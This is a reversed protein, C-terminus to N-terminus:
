RQRCARDQDRDARARGLFDGFGPSERQAVIAALPSGDASPMIARMVASRSTRASSADPNTAAFFRYAAGYGAGSRDSKPAGERRFHPSLTPALALWEAM